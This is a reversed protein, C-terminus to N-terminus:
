NVQLWELVHFGVSGWTEIVTGDLTPEGYTGVIDFEETLNGEAATWFRGGLTHDARLRTKVADVLADFWDAAVQADPEISRAFLHLEVDYHVLKWGTAIRQEREAVIYVVGVAGSPNGAGPTYALAAVQRPVARFITQLGAVGTLYAAVGTRVSNRSV